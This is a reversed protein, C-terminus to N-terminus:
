ERSQISMRVRQYFNELEDFWLQRDRGLFFGDKSRIEQEIDLWIDADKARFKDSHQTFLTSITDYDMMSAKVFGGVTMQLATERPIVKNIQHIMTHIQSYVRLFDSDRSSTDINIRASQMDTAQISGSSQNQIRVNQSGSADESNQSLRDLLGATIGGISDPKWLCLIGLVGFIVIFLWLMQSLTNWEFNRELIILISSVILFVISTVYGKRRKEDM